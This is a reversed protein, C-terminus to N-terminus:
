SFEEVASDEEAVTYDFSNFDPLADENPLAATKPSLRQLTRQVKFAAGLDKLQEAYEGLRVFQDELKFVSSKIAAVMFKFLSPQTKSSPLYFLAKIQLLQLTKELFPIAIFGFVLTFISVWSLFAGLMM